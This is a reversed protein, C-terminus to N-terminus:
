PVTDAITAKLVVATLMERVQTIMCIIKTHPRTEM